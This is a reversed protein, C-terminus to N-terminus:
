SGSGAPLPLPGPIHRYASDLADLRRPLLKGPPLPRETLSVIASVGPECL